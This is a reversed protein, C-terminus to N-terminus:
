RARNFYVRLNRTQRGAAVIDSRGDGDIDAVALDEVAVGAPDVLAREWTGNAVDIPDYIRVGCPLSADRNDRVGIVLEEDPDGDLNACWVAHGWQLERDLVHRTWLKSGDRPPTYVVVQNGHWPEITAIYKTGNALRGPKIESAGRNPASEQDGSGLQKRQWAGKADRSLLHVGEFSVILIDTRGDDDFDGPWFNHCVHLEENLVIPEWPGVVPDAPIPYALVRVPQESWNPGSSNRGMLPVVILESRGDDDIDAWRIRHVTPEEGIPLVRYPRKADATAHLCQITGGTKTDMPRWDAALAFDIRGDGDVDLPALSVNDPKTEGALLTHETWPEGAQGPNEFWLVRQKDVVVVDPRADGSLEVVSVAYGVGLDRSLEQAEFRLTEGWAPAALLLATLGSWQVRLM